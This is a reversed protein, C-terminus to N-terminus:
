WKTARPARFMRRPGSSTRLDGLDPVTDRPQTGWTDPRHPVPGFGPIMRVPMAEIQTWSARISLTTSPEGEGLVIVTPVGVALEQAALALDPSSPGLSTLLCTASLRYLSTLTSRVFRKILALEAAALVADFSDFVVTDIQRRAALANMEDLAREASGMSRLKHTFWPGTSILSLAGGALAAHIDFGLCDDAIACLADPEDNSVYLCRGGRTVTERAVALACWTKGSRAPGHLLTIANVPLGGFGLEDIAPLGSSAFRLSPTPTTTTM